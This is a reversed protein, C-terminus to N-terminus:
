AGTPSSRGGRSRTAAKSTAKLANTGSTSARRKTTTAGGSTARTTARRAARNPPAPAEGRGAGGTNWYREATDRGTTADFLVTLAAIKVVAWPVADAVMEDHVPGLLRLYLTQEGDDDLLEAGAADEDTVLKGGVVRVGLTLIQQCWLGTAADIPPIRYTKGAYPLELGGSLFDALDQFPV